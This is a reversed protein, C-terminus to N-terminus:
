ADDKGIHINVKSDSDRSLIILIGFLWFWGNLPYTTDFMEMFPLNMVDAVWFLLILNTM